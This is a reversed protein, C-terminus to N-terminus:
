GRRSMRYLLLLWLYYFYSYQPCDKGIMKPYPLDLSDMTKVFEELTETLRPNLRKEEGVTTCTMGKYDHAPYLKTEEPLTFIKRHVSTYLTAADGEQFDTRGCGRILVADGTFAMGQQFMSIRWLSRLLTQTPLTLNVSFISANYMDSFGQFCSM